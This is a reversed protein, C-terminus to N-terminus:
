SSVLRLTMWEAACVCILTLICLFVFPCNSLDVFFCFFICLSRLFCFMLTFDYVRSCLTLQDFSVQFSWQSTLVSLLRQIM